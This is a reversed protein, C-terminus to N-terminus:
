RILKYLKDFLRGKIVYIDHPDDERVAIYDGINGSYYKEDDWATFLKVAHDLPKAFICTTGAPSIVTKAYPIVPQVEGTLLNKISPEYEFERQFKFGTFQYSNALKEGSIPYIEGEIGIMLYTDETITINVDGELTRIEVHTGVPFADALRVTGLHQPQKTYLHMDSTDLTTNKAYLVQYKEYYDRIRGELVDRASSDLKEPRITGGAKFLHGGGGGIGDALFAALENAHVEKSCSRVSFKIESPSEYFALCVDVEATEMAFDSIVGLINPDCPESHIILYRKDEHYEYDLIAKGTIKLEELSINSNSMETILSKNFVLEEIMDRDLPHSIESLRNSDTYLGYYLATALNKDANVDIGEDKLLSWIITACSGVGSRVEALPPLEETVQHHDIIALTKYPSKTVNKQGYQCDCTILLEPAEDMEPVYDIPIDLESLMIMLNSKRIQNHGRYIFRANKGNKAFFYYLAYGSAIADADPNDHCQIVIDEYKLLDSLRLM